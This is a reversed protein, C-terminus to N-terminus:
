GLIYPYAGTLWGYLVSGLPLVNFQLTRNGFTNGPFFLNNNGNNYLGGYYGYLFRAEEKDQKKIPLKIKGTANAAQKEQVKTTTGNVAPRASTLLVLSCGLAVLWIFTPGM